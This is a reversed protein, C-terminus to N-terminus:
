GLGLGEEAKTVGLDEEVDDLGTAESIADSADAVGTAVEVDSVAGGVEQIVGDPAEDAFAVGGGLGVLAISVAAAAALRGLRATLTNSM